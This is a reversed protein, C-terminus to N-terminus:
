SHKQKWDFIIYNSLEGTAKLCNCHSALPRHRWALNVLARVQDAQAHHVQNNDTAVQALSSNTPLWTVQRWSSAMQWQCWRMARSTVKGVTHSVVLYRCLLVSLCNCQQRRPSALTSSLTAGVDRALLKGCAGVYQERRSRELPTHCARALTASHFACQSHRQHKEIKNADFFQM